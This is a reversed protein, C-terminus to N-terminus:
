GIQVVIGHLVAAAESLQVAISRFQLYIERRKLIDVMHVFANMEAQEEKARLRQVDEEVAYIAALARRYVREVSPLCELGMQADPEALGPADALRGYGRHLAHAAERLVIAMELCYNDSTIGLADMEEIVLHLTGMPAELTTIAQLLDSRDIPTSFSQQLRSLHQLRLTRAKEERNALAARSVAEGELLFECAHSFGQALNEAQRTIMALFPPMPPLVQDLMHGLTSQTSM